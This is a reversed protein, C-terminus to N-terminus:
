VSFEPHPRLFALPPFLSLTTATFLVYCSNAFNQRCGSRCLDRVVFCGYAFLLCCLLCPLVPSTSLFLLVNWTTIYIYIYILSGAKWHDDSIMATIYAVKVTAFLFGSFIGAQVPNSGKVRRYRHLARGILSVLWIPEWKAENLLCSTNKEKFM